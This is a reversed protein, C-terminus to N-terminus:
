SYFEMWVRNHGSGSVFEVKVDWVGTDMKTVYSQSGWSGDGVATFSRSDGTIRNTLRLAVIGGGGDVRFKITKANGKVDVPNLTKGNTIAGEYYYTALLGRAQVEEISESMETNTANQPLEAAMTPVSATVLMTTAVIPTLAKLIKSM